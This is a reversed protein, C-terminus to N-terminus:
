NVPEALLDSVLFFVWNEVDDYDWVRESETEPDDTEFRFESLDMLPEATDVGLVLGHYDAPAHVTFVIRFDKDWSLVGDEVVPRESLVRYECKM